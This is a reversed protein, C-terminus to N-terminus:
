RIIVMRIALVQAIEAMQAPDVICCGTDEYIRPLSPVLTLRGNPKKAAELNLFWVHSSWACRGYEEREAM